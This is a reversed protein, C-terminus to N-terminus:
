FRLQLQTIWTERRVAGIRRTVWNALLRVRNPALDFNVGATTARNRRSALPPKLDERRAVLQCWPVVRWGALAYWGRDRGGVDRRQEIWEARLLAGREELTGEYGFRTSDSAYAAVAAGIQLQAFPRATARGVVLVSSDRNVAVNQGEGNFVGLQLAADPGWAAEGMVGIDRKPALADVVAAREATEVQTISMIFERTFPTKFQGATLAFPGYTWKALADRLSVLGTTGSVAEFEVLFRYSFRAPLAGDVSVRARNLTATLGVGKMWTERAQLYGGVKPPSVANPSPAAIAAPTSTTDSPQASPAGAPLMAVALVLACFWSVARGRM